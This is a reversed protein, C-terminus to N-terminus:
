EAAVVNPDRLLSELDQDARRGLQDDRRMFM